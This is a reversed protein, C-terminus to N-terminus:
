HGNLRARIEAGQKVSEAEAQDLAAKVAPHLAVEVDGSIAVKEPADLGMLKARRGMTNVQSNILKVVADPNDGVSIANRESILRAEADDLKDLEFLRLEDSKPAIRKNIEDSLRNHVTGVGLNVRRAIERISLGQLRLDYCQEQEAAIKADNGMSQANSGM